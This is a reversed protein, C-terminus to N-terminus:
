RHFKKSARNLFDRERETLSGLGERGVKALLKDVKARVEQEERERRLTKQPGRTRTFRGAARELPLFFWGVVFGGVHALHATGTQSGQIAMLLDLGTLAFVLTRAKVPFIGWILVRQHPFLRAFMAMLGFVAASAGLIPIGYGYWPVMCIGGALAAVFYLRFLRSRGLTSEVHGGFMWLLFMNMLIHLPNEVDHLFSYTIFQWVRLKQIAVYPTLAFLKEFPTLYEYAPLGRPAREMGMFFMVQVAFVVGNAILLAKVAPSLRGGFGIRTHYGRGHYSM